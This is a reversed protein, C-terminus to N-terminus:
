TFILRKAYINNQMGNAGWFRPRNAGELCYSREEMMKHNMGGKFVFRLILLHTHSKVCLSNCFYDKADLNLPNGFEANNVPLATEPLRRAELAKDRLAIQVPSNTAKDTPLCVSGSASQDTM